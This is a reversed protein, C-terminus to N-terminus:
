VILAYCDRAFDAVPSYLSDGQRIPSWELSSHPRPLFGFPKDIRGVYYQTLNPVGKIVRDAHAFLSVLRQSARPRCGLKELSGLARCRFQTSAWLAHESLRDRAKLPRHIGHLRKM